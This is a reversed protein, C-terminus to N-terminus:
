QPNDARARRHVRDTLSDAVQAQVHAWVADRISTVGAM